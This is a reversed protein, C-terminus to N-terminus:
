LKVPKVTPGSRSLDDTLTTNPNALPVRHGDESIAHAAPQAQVVVVGDRSAWLDSERGRFWQFSKWAHMLWMQNTNATEPGTCLSWRGSAATCPLSAWHRNAPAPWLSWDHIQPSYESDSWWCCLSLGGARAGPCPESRLPYRHSCM